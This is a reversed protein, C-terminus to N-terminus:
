GAEWFGLNPNLDPALLLAALDVKNNGKSIIVKAGSTCIMAEKHIRNKELGLYPATVSSPCEQIGASLELKEM